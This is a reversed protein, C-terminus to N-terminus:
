KVVKLMVSKAAHESNKGERRALVVFPHETPEVWPECYIVFTRTAEAETVLIGNLGVDLVRVGHPLGRVDLPVRGTFGNRREIKTTVRVEQGPRVTVASQETTTMLDGPEQVQPVGGAVERVVDQGDIKARAVLKLAAGSPKPADADAWLAFATM